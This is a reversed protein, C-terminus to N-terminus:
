TSGRVYFPRIIVLGASRADLNGSNPPDAAYTRDHAFKQCTQHACVAPTAAMSEVRRSRKTASTSWHCSVVCNIADEVTGRSHLLCM